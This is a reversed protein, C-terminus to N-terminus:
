RAGARSCVAPITKLLVAVDHWVTWNNVYWIDLQVRRAYSTNSRGSVQWLGTLGPRTAYYQAIDDGYLPVESEVIPRPGVLSMELRIVNILQPLEDLSTKRLFEGARTVPPDKRLERKAAWGAALAPDKALAEDLVREADVVMTRFKLCDFSRGGAGVRRHVFFTPGGDRRSIIALVLFLPSTLALLLTSLTVDMTAKLVRSLPRSLGDHFSLVASEHGFVRTADCAFAPFAFPQSVMAFPVRERLALGIIHPQLEDKVDLAILLRHARYRNLIPWLRVPENHTVIARPDVRGVTRYGLSRDSNLVAEAEDACPGEGIVLVPLAWLGARALVRKSSQHALTAGAPFLLITALTPGRQTLDGTLAGLAVLATAACLSAFTLVRLEDWFPIRQSYRGRIGVYVIVGSFLVGFDLSASRSSLSVVDSHGGLRRFLLTAAVVAALALFDAGILACACIVPRYAFQRRVGGGPHELDIRGALRDRVLTTL